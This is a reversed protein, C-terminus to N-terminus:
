SIVIFGDSCFVTVIHSNRSYYWGPEKEISEWEDMTGEFNFDTLNDCDDFALTDIRIVSKPITITKLSGCNSFAAYGIYTVGESIVFSTFKHCASFTERGINTIGNPLTISTLGCGYFASDGISKVSSPITINKLRSCNSFAGDSIGVTGEKLTVTSKIRSTDSGVVWNGVYYVGDNNSILKTCGDFAVWGINTVGNPITINELDSCGSFAFSGINILDKSLTVNVLNSCRSFASDGIGKVGDPVVINTLTECSAFVGGYIVKTDKHITYSASDIPEVRMLVVYPNIDNGLYYANEYITYDINAFDNFVSYGISELSDPISINTLNNCEFFANNGIHRVSDGLKINSLNTCRYFMYEGVNVLSDPLIVNDLSHCDMFAGEGIVDRLSNGFTVSSLNTCNYFAGELLTTVTDPLTISTLGQCGGFAHRGITVIGNPITITTLNKRGDFSHDGIITVSGDDPIISKIGGLVLTKKETEILCNNDTHYKPNEKSIVINALNECNYFSLSDIHQVSAGLTLTTLKTCNYFSGDYIETVSDPITISTINNANEFAYSGIITTRYGGITSPIYIDTDVCSGIGTITCTKGDDNIKYALGVSGLAHISQVEKEGCSCSREQKGDETKTAEKVTVWDGFNHTHVEPPTTAKEGNPNTTVQEDGQMVFLKDLLQDCSATTLLVLVMLCLLVTIKFTKKM